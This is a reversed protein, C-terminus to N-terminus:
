SLMGETFLKAEPNHHRLLHNYFHSTLRCSWRLCIRAFTGYCPRDRSCVWWSRRHYCRHRLGAVRSRMDSLEMEPSFKPSGFLCAHKKSRAPSELICPELETNKMKTPKSGRMQDEECNRSWSPYRDPVPWPRLPYSEALDYWDQGFNQVM